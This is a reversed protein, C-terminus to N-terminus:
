KEPGVTWDEEIINERKKKNDRRKLVTTTSYEPETTPIKFIWTGTVEGFRNSIQDNKITDIVTIGEKELFPKVDFATIITKVEDLRKVYLTIVVTAEGIERDIIVSKDKIKRLSLAV